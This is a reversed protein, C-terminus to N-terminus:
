GKMFERPSKGHYKRFIRIFYGADDFGVKYAVESITYDSQKLLAAAKHLRVKHIFQTTSQNTLAALKRHLQSRSMALAKALDDVAFRSNELQAEMIAIARSIFEQENGPFITETSDAFHEKSFKESL